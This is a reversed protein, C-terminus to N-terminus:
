LLAESHSYHDDGNLVWHTMQASARLGRFSLVPGVCCSWQGRHRHGEGAQWSPSMWTDGPVGHDNARLLTKSLPCTVQPISPISGPGRAGWACVASLQGLGTKSHLASHYRNACRCQLQGWDPGTNTCILVTRVLSPLSSSLMPPPPFSRCSSLTCVEASPHALFAGLALALAPAPSICHELAQWLRCQALVLVLEMM